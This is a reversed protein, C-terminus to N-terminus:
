HGVAPEETAAPDRTRALPLFARYLDGGFLAIKCVATRLGCDAARLGCGAARLGCGAARLSFTM